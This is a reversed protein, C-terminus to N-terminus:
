NHGHVVRTYTTDKIMAKYNLENKDCEKKYMDLPKSEKKTDGIYNKGNATM